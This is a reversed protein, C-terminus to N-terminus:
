TAGYPLNTVWLGTESLKGVLEDIRRKKSSKRSSVAIEVFEDVRRNTRRAFELIELKQNNLDQKDTSVRIYAITRSM